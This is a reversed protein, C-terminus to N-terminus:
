VQNSGTFNMYESFAVFNQSIEVLKTVKEYYILKLKLAILTMSFSYFFIVNLACKKVFGLRGSINRRVQEIQDVLAAAM